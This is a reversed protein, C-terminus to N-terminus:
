RYLPPPPMRLRERGVCPRESHCEQTPAEASRNAGPGVKRWKTRNSWEITAGSNSLRGSIRVGGFDMTLVGDYGVTGSAHAWGHLPNAAHIWCGDVDIRSVDAPNPRSMAPTAAQAWDGAWASPKGPIVVRAAQEHLVKAEHCCGLAKQLYSVGKSTATVLAKADDSMASRQRVQEVARAEQTLLERLHQSPNADIAQKKMTVMQASFSQKSCVTHAARREEGEATTMREQAARVRARLFPENTDCEQLIKKSREISGEVGGSAWTQPQLLTTGWFRSLPAPASRSRARPPVRRQSSPHTACWSTECAEINEKAATSARTCAAHKSCASRHEKKAGLALNAATSHTSDACELSRVRSELQSYEAWNIARAAQQKPLPLPKLKCPKVSIQEGDALQIQFRGNVDM